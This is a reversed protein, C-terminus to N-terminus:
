GMCAPGLTCDGYLPCTLHGPVDSRLIQQTALTLAEVRPKAAALDTPALKSLRDFEDAIRQMCGDRTPAM